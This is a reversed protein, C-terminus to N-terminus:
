GVSMAAGTLTATVSSVTVLGVTASTLSPLDANLPPPTSPDFAVPTGDALSGSLSTCYMTVSGGLIVQTATTGPIRVAPDTSDLSFADLGVRDATIKLVTRTSGDALTVAVTGIYRAGELTVSSSRLRGGTPAAVPADQDVAAPPLAAPPTVSPAPAAALPVTTPAPPPAATPSPTPTPVPTPDPTPTPAPTSVQPEPATPAPTTVGPDAFSPGTALGASSAGLLVALAVIALAHGQRRRTPSASVRDLFSGARMGTQGTPVPTPPEAGSESPSRFAPFELDILALGVPDHPAADDAPEPSDAAPARRPMWSVAMVGGILGLLTGIFFGGLNVGVLAYISFTLSMVGYFMRHAPMALILVGLTILAVPLIMAQMGEIGVQIRINGLDLQGSFLMEIGAVAILLGGIAPRTRYWRGFRSGAGPEDPGAAAMTTARRFINM